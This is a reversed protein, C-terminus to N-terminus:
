RRADFNDMESVLGSYPILWRNNVKMAGPHLGKRCDRQITKVSQGTKEAFQKVTLIDTNDDDAKELLQEETLNMKKNLFEPIEEKPLWERFVDYYNYENGLSKKAIAMALGKEPDFSEGKAKVVTKTGDSWFVITAPDNFIVNKISRKIALKNMQNWAVKTAAIDTEIYGGALITSDLKLRLDEQRMTKDEKNLNNIYSFTRPLKPNRRLLRVCCRKIPNDTIRVPLGMLTNSHYKRGYIIDFMYVSTLKMLRDFVDCGFEWFYEYSDFNYVAHHEAGLMEYLINELLEPGVGDMQVFNHEQM